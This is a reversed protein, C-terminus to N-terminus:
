TLTRGKMTIGDLSEEKDCDNRSNPKLIILHSVIAKSKDSDINMRTPAKKDVSKTKRIHNTMIDNRVNSHVRQWRYFIDHDALSAFLQLNSSTVTTEKAKNSQMDDHLPTNTM